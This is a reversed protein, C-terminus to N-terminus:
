NLNMVKIEDGRKLLVSTGRIDAVVWQDIISGVKVKFTTKKAINEINAIMNGAAGMISKVAYKDDFSVEDKQMNGSGLVKDVPKGTSLSMLTTLAKVDEPNSFDASDLKDLLKQNIEADRSKKKREEEDKEEQQKQKRIEETLKRKQEQQKIKRQRADEEVSATIKKKEAKQKELDLKLKGQEIKLKMLANEREINSIQQFTSAAIDDLKYMNNPDDLGEENAYLEESGYGEEFEEDSIEEDGGNDEETDSEEEVDVDTDGNEEASEDAINEEEEIYEEKDDANQAFVSNTNFAFVFSFMILLLMLKNKNINKEM